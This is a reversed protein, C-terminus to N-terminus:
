RGAADQHLTGMPLQPLAARVPLRHRPQLEGLAGTPRNSTTDAHTRGGGRIAGDLAPADLTGLLAIGKRVDRLIGSLAAYGLTEHRRAWAPQRAREVQAALAVLAAALANATQAVLEETFTPARRTRGM